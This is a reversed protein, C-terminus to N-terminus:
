VQIIIDYTIKNVMILRLLHAKIKCDKTTDHYNLGGKNEVHCVYAVHLIDNPKSNLKGKNRQSKDKAM